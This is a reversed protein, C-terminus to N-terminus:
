FVIQAGVRFVRPPVIGTAQNFTSNSLNGTNWSTVTNINFVNFADGMVKLRNKGGRFTFVKQVGVDLLKTSGNRTTNADQFNLTTFNPGQLTAGSPSLGGYVRGPGGVSLTRTTGDNWNLNGSANIGYPLAYTGSIKILYRRITSVGDTFQVGTPDTYSGLPSYSPQYQLTASANMQWRNSFRKNLTPIVAQYTSYSGDTITISGTSSPVIAGQKIQYYPSTIGTVPDTYTIPGTYIQSLPFQSSGPQYGATYDRFGNDYRRYVYDVGVALNPILEHQVGTIFERTRGMKANKDVSNGAGTLVGTDADFRSPGRPVGILENAQVLGDHNADNWCNSGTCAGSNQNDGWTLTVTGLGSLADALTVKTDYYLSYSAHISTKGNGRLDYTASVRPAFVSFSPIPEM